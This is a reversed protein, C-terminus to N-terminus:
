ALTGEREKIYDCFKVSIISANKQIETLDILILQGGQFGLIVYETRLPHVDMCTIANGRFAKDNEFFKGWLKQSDREFAWLVGASTGLLIVEDTIL